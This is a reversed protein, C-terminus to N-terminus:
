WPQGFLFLARHICQSTQTECLSSLTQTATGRLPIRWSHPLPVPSLQGLFSLSLHFESVRYLATASQPLLNLVSAWPRGQHSWPLSGAQRHLLHPNLGQDPLCCSLGHVVVALAPIGWPGHEGVLFTVVLLRHIVVPFYGRERFSSFFGLM